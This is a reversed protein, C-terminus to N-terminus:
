FHTLIVMLFRLILEGLIAEDLIATAFVDLSDWTIEVTAAKLM